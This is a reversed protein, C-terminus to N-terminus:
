RPARHPRQRTATKQCRGTHDTPGRSPSHHCQALQARRRTRTTPARRITAQAVKCRAQLLVVRRQKTKPMAHADEEEECAVPPFRQLPEIRGLDNRRFSLRSPALLSLLQYSAFVKGASRTPIVLASCMPGECHPAEGVCLLHSPPGSVFRAAFDSPPARARCTFWV